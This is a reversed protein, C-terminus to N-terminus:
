RKSRGRPQIKIQDYATVDLKREYEENAIRDEKQWKYHGM